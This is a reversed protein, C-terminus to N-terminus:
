VASVYFMTYRFLWNLYDMNPSFGFPVRTGRTERASDCEIIFRIRTGPQQSLWVLYGSMDLRSTLRIALRLPLIQFFYQAIHVDTKQRFYGM